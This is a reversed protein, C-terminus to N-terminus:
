GGSRSLAVLGRNLFDEFAAYEDSNTDYLQPYSFENPAPDIIGCRLIRHKARYETQEVETMYPYLSKACKRFSNATDCELRSLCAGAMDAPPYFEALEAQRYDDENEWLLFLISVFRSKSDEADDIRHRFREQIRTYVQEGSRISDIDAKRLTRDVTWGVALAAITVLFFLTSIRFRM